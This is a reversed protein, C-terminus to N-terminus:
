RNATAPPGRQARNEAPESSDASPYFEELFPHTTAPRVTSAPRALAGAPTLTAHGCCNHQAMPTSFGPQQRHKFCCAHADRLVTAQALPALVALAVVLLLASAWIRRM